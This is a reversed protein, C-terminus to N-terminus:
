GLLEQVQGNERARQGMPELLVSTRRETNTVPDASISIANQDQKIRSISAQLATNAETLATITSVANRYKEQLDVLLQQSKAASQQEEQIRTEDRLRLQSQLSSLEGRVVCNEEEVLRLKSQM